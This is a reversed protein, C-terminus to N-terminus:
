VTSNTIGIEINQCCYKGYRKGFIATVELPDIVTPGHEGDKESNETDSGGSESECSFKSMEQILFLVETCIINGMLFMM